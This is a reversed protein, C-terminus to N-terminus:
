HRIVFLLQMGEAIALGMFNPSTAKHHKTM